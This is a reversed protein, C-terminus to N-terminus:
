VSFGSETALPREPVDSGGGKRPVAKNGTPNLGRKSANEFQKLERERYELRKIKFEIEELRCKNILRYVQRGAVAVLICGCLFQQVYNLAVSDFRFFCLVGSAGCGSFLQRLQPEKLWNKILSMQKLNLKNSLVKEKDRLM